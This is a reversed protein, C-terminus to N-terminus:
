CIWVGTVGALLAETRTLSAPVYASAWFGLWPRQRNNHMPRSRGRRVRQRIAHHVRATANAVGRSKPGPMSRNLSDCKPPRRSILHLEQAAPRVDETSPERMASFNSTNANTPLLRRNPRNICDVKSQQGQHPGRVPDWEAYWATVGGVNPPNDRNGAQGTEGDCRTM